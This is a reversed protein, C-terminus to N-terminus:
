NGNHDQPSRGMDLNIANLMATYAYRSACLALASGLPANERSVRGIAASIRDGDLALLAERLGTRLEQPLSALDEPRLEAVAEGAAPVAKRQYRVGLQRAMCEFIESPRYPKRVYDDMGAALAENREEAFGSATVAAIKVDRGNELARIRRTADFGNMVPMRLDMWIFHPQWERFCEVGEAGDQVIRVQFGAKQLLYKMLKQNERDDEVVLVRCEPLGEIGAVREPELRLARGESERTREVPIEVRFCSGKGVTSQIHVTGGMLEVFQRTIALGLGTGKEMGAEALQVFPEFVRAQDENAIGIGTDQVEFILRVHNPDETSRSTSRLTVSGQDTHKVANGLLNILVQRLRAADTRINRPSEPTEVLRLVVLKEEARPRIMDTVERLLARLDCPVIAIAARGAEIKALDLVENILSLLHEGSRNIVDLDRRQEETAGHQRLLSSFGLIANLPTRLEHSMNALFASKSRNSALAQDRAEVLEATREDVLLELSEKYKELELRTKRARKRALLLAFILVSQLAFVAIATLIRWKFQQWLSLERFRIVSNKPLRDEPVSWRQLQRWDFMPVDPANEVPINSARTGSAVKLTMEALRAANAEMTYVYGGVIGLGVNAFSMGYLPTRAIPTILKLVDWSELLRGQDNRAQQWVYLVISREPLNKIRVRLEEVPLDTLYTIAAKSEYGKLQGRAMNEYLKDHALTGSVVFVQETGPHLKLALDLTKRYTNVFVIGTAGAEAELQAATPYNTAAFVIPTNPFLDGRYKFLFELAPGAYAVVVDIPNDAYKQRVYDHLFKAQKEGPFRTSELFESYFEIPGPAANKLAAQFNREFETNAPHDKEDWYLVLVHKPRDPQQARGTTPLLWVLTLVLLATRPLKSNSLAKM